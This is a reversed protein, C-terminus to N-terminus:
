KEVVYENNKIKIIYGPYLKRGRRAEIESNVLVEEENLFTKAESGFSIIGTFKLLQGLTIYETEIKVKKM